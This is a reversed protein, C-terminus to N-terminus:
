KSFLYQEIIKVKTESEITMILIVKVKKLEVLIGNINYTHLYIM